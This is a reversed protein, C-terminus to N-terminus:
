SVCLVRSAFLLDFFPKQLFFFFLAFMFDAPPKTCQAWSEHDNANVYFCGQQERLPSCKNLPEVAGCVCGDECLTPLTAAVAVAKPKGSTSLSMRVEPWSCFASSGETAGSVTHLVAQLFVPLCKQKMCKTTSTPKTPKNHTNVEQLSSCQRRHLVAESLSCWSLVKFIVLRYM